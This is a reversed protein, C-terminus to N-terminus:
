EKKREKKKKKARSKSGRERIAKGYLFGKFKKLNHNYKRMDHYTNLFSKLSVTKAM